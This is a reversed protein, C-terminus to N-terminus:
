YAWLDAEWWPPDWSAPPTNMKRHMILLCKYHTRATLPPFTKKVFYPPDDLPDWCDPPFM